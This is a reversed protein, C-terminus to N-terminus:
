RPRDLLEVLWHHTAGSGATVVEAVSEARSYSKLDIAWRRLMRALAEVEAVTERLVRREECLSSGDLDTSAGCPLENQLGGLNLRQV